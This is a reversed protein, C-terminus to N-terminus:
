SIVDQRGSKATRRSKPGTCSSQRTFSHGIDRPCHRDGWARGAAGCDCEYDHSVFAGTVRGSKVSTVRGRQGEHGRVKCRRIRDQGARGHRRERNVQNGFWGCECENAQAASGPHVETAAPQLVYHKGRRLSSKFILLYQGLERLASCQEAGYTLSEVSASCHEASWGIM